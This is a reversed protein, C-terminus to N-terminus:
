SQKRKLALASLGFFGLGFFLTPEPTQVTLLGLQGGEVLNNPGGISGNRVSHAQVDLILIKEGPRAGPFFETIDLIGSTEWNGLDNPSSDTQGGPLSSSRDVQGVESWDLNDPSRVGFDPGSFQGGGADNGDYLIRASVSSAATDLNGNQDFVLNNDFIYVTGWSDAGNFLSSRGTSALVIQSGDSPNISVDEPRSFSFAGLADAQARLNSDTAFGNLFGVGNGENVVEVWRGASTNGTGAFNQPDVGKDGVWVYLKGQKLGNRDLFSGDGVGNKEGIYLYLPASETDDGGIM